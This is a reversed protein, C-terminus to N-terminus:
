QPSQSVVGPNKAGPPGTNEVPVAGEVNATRKKGLEDRLETSATRKKGLEDRLEVEGGPVTVPAKAAPGEPVKPGAPLAPKVGVGSSVTSPDAALVPLALLVGALMAGFNWSTRM